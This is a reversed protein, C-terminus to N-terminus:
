CSNLTHRYGSHKYSRKKTQKDRIVTIFTDLATPQVASFSRFQRTLLPVTRKNSSSGILENTIKAIDIKM